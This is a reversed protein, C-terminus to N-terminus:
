AGSSSHSRAAIAAPYASGAHTISTAARASLKPSAKVFTSPMEHLRGSSGDDDTAAHRACAREIVQGLDAPGVDHEDFLAFQGRTGGPMRRAPHVGEVALRIDRPQLFIRNVQIALDLRQGALGAPQMRVAAEHERRRLAFEVTQLEDARAGAVKAHFGLHDRELLGRAEIGENVGAM